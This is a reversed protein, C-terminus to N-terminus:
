ELVRAAVPPLPVYIWQARVEPVRGEQAVKFGEVPAIEPVGVAGPVVVPRTNVTVSEFEKVAEDEGSVSVTPLSVVVAVTESVGVLTM